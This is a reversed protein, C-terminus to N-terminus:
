VLMAKITKYFRRDEITDESPRKRKSGRIFYRIAELLSLM